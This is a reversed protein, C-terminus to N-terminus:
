EPIQELEPIFDIIIQGNDGLAAKLKNRWGQLRSQSELQLQRILARLAQVIASLPRNSQFQDFKGEIFYGQQRIISQHLKRILATKGIGSGGSVLIIERNGQCVRRYAGLLVELEEERGYLQQPIKLRDSVDWLGLTFDTICKREQWQQQCQALDYKLGFATQYRDEPNKAMLKLIIANVMNPIHPNLQQPPVPAIALHSHVLEMEDKSTFPLQGTLLQYFTVGLSYFDSRRDIGRNMRGTQEPSIYPLTNELFSFNHWLQRNKPLLAALSFDTLKIQKTDPNILINQPQIKQHVIQHHNLQELVQALQLAIQWFETLNETLSEWYNRAACYDLLPIGAFDEMVLALGNGYSELGYSAIAGDLNLNKTIIYQNRLQNLDSIKPYRPKLFEIAVKQNDKIREGRYVITKTGERLRDFIKYGKLSIPM